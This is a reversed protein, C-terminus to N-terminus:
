PKRGQSRQKKREEQYQRERRDIEAKPVSVVKRTFDKFKEFPTSEPQESKTSMYLKRTTYRTRLRRTAHVWKKAGENMQAKLKKLAAVDHYGIILKKGAGLLNEAERIQIHELGELKRVVSQRELGAILDAAELPVCISKEVFSLSGMRKQHDYESKVRTFMNTAADIWEANCTDEFVFAMKTDNPWLPNWQKVSQEMIGQLFSHVCFGYAHRYYKKVHAHVHKEYGARSVYRGLIFWSRKGIVTAYDLLLQNHEASSLHRYPWLGNKKENWHKGSIWVNFHFPPVKYEKQIALWKEHLMELDDSWAAYGAVGCAKGGRSKGTKDHTGTEDAYVQINVLIRNRLMRIFAKFANSKREGSTSM